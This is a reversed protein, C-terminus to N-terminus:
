HRDPQVLEFLKEVTQYRQGFFPNFLESCRGHQNIVEPLIFDAWLDVFGIPIVVGPKEVQEGAELMIKISVVQDVKMFPAFDATEDCPCQQFPPLKISIIKNLVELHEDCYFFYGIAVAIAVIIALILNSKM